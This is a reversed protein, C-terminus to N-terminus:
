NEDQDLKKLQLYQKTHLYYGYTAFIFLLKIPIGLITYINVWILIFCQYCDQLGENCAANFMCTYGFTNWVTILWGFVLFVEVM